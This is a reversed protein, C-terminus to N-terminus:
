RDYTGRTEHATWAAVSQKSVNLLLHASDVHKKKMKLAEKALDPAGVDLFYKFKAQQVAHAPMPMRSRSVMRGLAYIMPKGSHSYTHARYYYFYSPKWFKSSGESLKFLEQTILHARVVCAMHEDSMRMTEYRSKLEKVQAGTGVKERGVTLGVGLLGGKELCKSVGHIKKFLEDSAHSCFDLFATSLGRNERAVDLVDGVEIRVGPYKWRAAHAQHIDKDVAVIQDAYIGLGFLTGVDGAEAGALVLHNGEFFINKELQAVQRWLELRALKKAPSEGQYTM